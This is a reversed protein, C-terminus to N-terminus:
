LMFAFFIDLSSFSFFFFRLGFVCVCVCLVALVCYCGRLFCSYLFKSYLTDKVPTVEDPQESRPIGALDYPNQPGEDLGVPKEALEKEKDPNKKAGDIDEKLKKLKEKSLTRVAAVHTPIFVDEKGVPGVGRLDPVPLADLNVLPPLPELAGSAPEHLSNAQVVGALAVCLLVLAYARSFRQGLMM